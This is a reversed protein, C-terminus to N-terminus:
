LAIIIHRGSAVPVNTLPNYVDVYFNLSKNCSNFTSPLSTNLRIHRPAGAQNNYFFQDNISITLNGDDTWDMTFRIPEVGLGTSAPYLDYIVGIASTSTPQTIFTLSDITNVEGYSLTDKDSAGFVIGSYYTTNFDAPIVDCFKSFILFMSDRGQVAPVFQSPIIKIKVTDVEDGSYNLPNGLIDIAGFYSGSKIVTTNAATFNIDKVATLSNYTFGITRDATQLATLSIPISTAVNGVQRVPISRYVKGNRLIQTFRSYTPVISPSQDIYLNDKKCSLLSICFLSVFLVKNIKSM